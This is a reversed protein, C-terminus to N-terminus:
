FACLAGKLVPGPNWTKLTKPTLPSYTILTDLHLFSGM